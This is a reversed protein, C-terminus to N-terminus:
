WIEVDLPRAPGAGPSSVATTDFTIWRCTLAEYDVVVRRYSLWVPVRSRADRKIHSEKSVVLCKYEVKNVMEPLFFVPFGCACVYMYVCVNFM